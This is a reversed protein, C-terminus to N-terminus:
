EQSVSVNSDHKARVALYIGALVIAFGLGNSLPLREGFLVVALLAAIVPILLMCVAVIRASFVGVCYTLLGQGVSQSIVALGVLSLWVTASDPLLSDGRWIVLPLLSIGGILSVWLMVIGASLSRRLREFCLLSIAALVSALVAALDGGVDGVAVELDSMGIVGIGTVSVGLGLGFKLTLRQGLFIWALVATFIPMNNYLLTGNAVSTQTLSWGLMVLSASFCLSTVGLLVLSGRDYHPGSFRGRIGLSGQWLALPIAALGLRYFIAAFPTLETEVVVLWISGLAISVLAVGLALIGLVLQSMPPAIPTEEPDGAAPTNIPDTDPNIVM